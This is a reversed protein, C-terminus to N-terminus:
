TSRAGSPRCVPAWATTTGVAARRLRGHAHRGPRAPREKVTAGLAATQAARLAVATRRSLGVEPREFGPHHQDRPGAERSGLFLDRTQSSEIRVGSGEGASLCGYSVDQASEVVRIHQVERGVSGVAGVARHEGREKEGVSWEGNVIEVPGRRTDFRDDQREQSAPSLPTMLPSTM